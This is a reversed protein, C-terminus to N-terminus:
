WEFRDRNGTYDAGNLLIRNLLQYCSVRRNTVMDLHAQRSYRVQALNLCDM